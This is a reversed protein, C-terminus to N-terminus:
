QAEQAYGSTGRKHTLDQAQYRFEIREVRGIAGAAVQGTIVAKADVFSRRPYLHIAGSATAQTRPGEAYSGSDINRYDIGGRLETIGERAVQFTTAMKAGREAIDLPMSRFEVDTIPTSPRLDRVIGYLYGGERVLSTPFLDLPGGLKGDSDLVYGKAKDSIWYTREMPDFAVTIDAATLTSLHPAFRLREPASNARIRWAEKNTDVFVCEILDGGVAGRGAIGLPLLREDRYINGDPVLAAVGNQGFALPGSALEHFAMIAGPYRLPCIGWNYKELETLAFGEIDSQNTGTYFGILALLADFPRDSSGGGEEGYLIFSNDWAQATFALRDKTLTNKWHQFVRAFVADAGLGSLGGLLLRNGAKGVAKVNYATTRELTAGWLFTVGNTFFPLEQFFVGQWVDSALFAAGVASAEWTSTASYGQTQGMIWRNKEGRFLQVTGPTNWVPVPGSTVPNIAEPTVAGFPTPRLNKMVSAFGSNRPIRTDPYLGNRLPDDILFSHERIGGAFDTVPKPM